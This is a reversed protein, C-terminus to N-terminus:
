AVLKRLSTTEDEWSPSPADPVSASLFHRVTYGCVRCRRYFYSRKDGQEIGGIQEMNVPCCANGHTPSIIRKPYLNAPPKEDTYEVITSNVEEGTRLNLSWSPGPYTTAGNPRNSRRRRPDILAKKM